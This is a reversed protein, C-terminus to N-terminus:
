QNLKASLEQYLVETMTKDKYNIIVYFDNVKIYLYPGEESLLYLRCLGLDQLKFNGKKVENIAAGNTRELIEPISDKLEVSTVSSYEYIGGYMGQVEFESDRVIVETEINVNKNLVYLFIAVGILVVGGIILGAITSNKQRQKGGVRM